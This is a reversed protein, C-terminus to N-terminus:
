LHTFCQPDEAMYDGSVAYAIARCGGCLWKLNCDGCKGTLEDRNKLARVVDSQWVREFDTEQIKGLVIPLRRCPYIDGNSDVCIGNYGASCGAIANCCAGKILYPKWLPDRKPMDISTYKRALAQAKEIIKLYEKPSLCEEELAKGAGYPVLRSFTFRDAKQSALEVLSELELYNLKSITTNFTVQVGKAKLIEAGKLAKEFSGAGRIRDHTEKVGDISIQVLTCKSELLKLALEETIVTGNCLVRTGMKKKHALEILKFLSPSLFPEGGTFQIRGPKKLKKLFKDFKELIEVQQEFPLDKKSDDRYCHLCKLNCVDTIHWQLFFPEKFREVRKKKLWGFM